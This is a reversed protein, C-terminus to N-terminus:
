PSVTLTVDFPTVFGTNSLPGKVYFRVTIYAIDDINGIGILNWNKINSPNSDLSDTIQVYQFNGVFSEVKLEVSKGSLNNELHIDLQSKLEILGGGLDSCTVGVTSYESCPFIGGISGLDFVSLSEIPSTVRGVAQAFLNSSFLLLILIYKKM